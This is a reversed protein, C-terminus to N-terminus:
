NDILEISYFTKDSTTEVPLTTTNGSAAAPLNAHLNQWDIIAENLTTSHKVNFMLGPQSPWVLNLGGSGDNLMQVNFISGKDLPNIGLRFELHDSSGDGDSDAIKPDTEGPNVLGDSNTDEQFDFLGENDSDILNRGGATYDLFFPDDPFPRHEDTNNEGVPTTPWLEGYIGWSDDLAQAMERAMEVVLDPNTNALNDSEDRDNELNYLEFATAAEEYYFYILKMNDRRYTTFFSSRHSNPQHILLTQERHTGPTSTLYPSLDVGDMDPHSVGAISLLTPAMDVLSVIDHEVSDPVIPLQQQFPNTADAKGWAVFLPVHIGAEYCTAKKGRIPYDNFNSNTIFGGNNPLAPSDSGNDGTFVLLTNEAVGLQELKARIQGLSIDVGEVMTAFRLHGNTTALSYDGTANPNETFPSHVAYYSMYTFFPVGDNVAKEMEDNVAETLAETLWKGEGEYATINPVVSGGRTFGPNGIYRGPSGGGSGGLNVDFGIMRPDATVDDRAGFHGKGCHISRYGEASLLKPLTVDTVEMGRFRWNNPSRHTDVTPDQAREYNGGANLHVTVGHRPANFGTMLSTRTPSCVPLAYAQSFKIGDDALQEMNPTVYFNNFGRTVPSSGDTYTDYSFPESTDMVGWDDVLFLIINPRPPGVVVEVQEQDSDTENNAILTYTTTETPSISLSNTGTVDINGPNLTLTTANTTNWSLTASNGPEIYLDDVSLSAITPVPEPVEDSYTLTSDDWFGDGGGGPGTKTYVGFFPNTGIIPSGEEIIWTFTWTTFSTAAPAAETPPIYTVGNLTNFETVMKNKVAEANADLTSFFGAVNGRDTNVGTSIDNLGAFTLPTGTGIRAKFTYTGAQLTTPLTSGAISSYTSYLIGDRNASNSVGWLQGTEADLGDKTLNFAGAEIETGPNPADGIGFTVTQGNALQSALILSIIVPTKNLQHM